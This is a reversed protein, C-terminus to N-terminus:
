KKYSHLNHIILKGNTLKSTNGKGFVEEPFNIIFSSMLAFVTKKPLASIIDAVNQTTINESKILKVIKEM